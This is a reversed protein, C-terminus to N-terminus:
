EDPPRYANRRYDHFSSGGYTDIDDFFPEDAEVRRHDLPPYERPGFRQDDDVGFGNQGHGIPEIETTTTMDDLQSRWSEAPTPRRRQERVPPTAMRSPRPPALTYEVYDDDDDFGDRYGDFGSAFGEAASPRVRM